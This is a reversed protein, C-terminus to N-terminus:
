GAATDTSTTAPSAIPSAEGAQPGDAPATGATSQPNPILADLPVELLQAVVSIERVDFPVVGM